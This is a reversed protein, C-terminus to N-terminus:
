MRAQIAVAINNPITLPWKLTPRSSYRQGQCGRRQCICGNSWSLRDDARNWLLISSFAPFTFVSSCLYATLTSSNRDYITQEQNNLRRLSSFISILHILNAVNKNTYLNNKGWGYTGKRSYPCFSCFYSLQRPKVASESNRYFPNETSHRFYGPM